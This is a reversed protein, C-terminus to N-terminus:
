HRDTCLLKVEVTRTRRRTKYYMPIRSQDPFILAM